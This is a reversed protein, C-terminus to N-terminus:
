ESTCGVFLARNSGCLNTSDLFVCSSSSIIPVILKLESAGAKVVGVLGVNAGTTIVAVDGAVVAADM